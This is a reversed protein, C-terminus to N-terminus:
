LFSRVNRLVCNEVLFYSLIYIHLLLRQIWIWHTEKCDNLHMANLQKTWPFNTNYKCNFTTKIQTNLQHTPIVSSLMQRSFRRATGVERAVNICQVNLPFRHITELVNTNVCSRGLKLAPFFCLERENDM